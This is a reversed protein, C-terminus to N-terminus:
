WGRGARVAELLPEIPVAEARRGEFGEVTTARLLSNLIAEESADLAATFLPDLRDEPLPSPAPDRRRGAPDVWGTSFALAYDGSGHSLRAGVRPLAGLARRALRGLQRADLPADTAVVFVCSGDRDSKERSARLKEGLSVGLVTLDGGFNTQVLVGVTFGEAGEKTRRSSTGIGGKWGLCLTGTGAGVSGEEIPGDKAAEIAERVHEARVARARIDSLFGDNCEGVVPNVSRVDENGPLSLVWDVLGDAAAWISLTSTLAVPTELTGLEALQTSGVFKGFANGVALAAPVKERFPNGGHPLVVTVGTRISEGERLTRHGVKVGPVDTVADNPGAPLRGVVLGVDRARPRSQSSM